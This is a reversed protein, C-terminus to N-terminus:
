TNYHKLIYWLCMRRVSSFVIYLFYVLKTFRKKKKLLVGSLENLKAVALIKGTHLRLLVSTALL